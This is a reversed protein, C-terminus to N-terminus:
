QQALKLKAMAQTSKNFFIVLKRAKQVCASPSNINPLVGEEFTVDNYLKKCTLYFIHDSCYPHQIGLDELIQGFLKMNGMTDSTTAFVEANAGIKTSVDFIFRDIISEATSWGKHLFMGLTRSEM